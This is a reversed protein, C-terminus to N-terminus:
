CAGSTRTDPAAQLDGNADLVPQLQGDVSELLYPEVNIFTM